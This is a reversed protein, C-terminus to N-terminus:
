TKAHRHCVQTEARSAPKTAYRAAHLHAAQRMLMLTAREEPGLHTYHIQM